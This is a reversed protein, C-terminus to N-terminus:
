RTTSTPSRAGARRRPRLRGARLAVQAPLAQPPEDDAHPDPEAGAAAVRDSEVDGIPYFHDSVEYNRLMEFPHGIAYPMPKPKILFGSSPRERRDDSDLAFTCVTAASSTTSSSSRASRSRERTPSTTATAVTATARVVLAVVVQGVGEQPRRDLLARRGPRGPDPALHASRDLVDGQPPPCRPRRVHRLDLDARPVPPRRLRVDGVRRQGRRRRPRRHRRRRRTTPTRSTAARRGEEGRAAQHVQLRVQGLRSRHCGTTSPSASSTRTAPPHAVPLQPGGRHDVAQPAKEPKRANVVFRPNNVAVAPAMVNITSFILNVILQDNRRRRDYQKGRYLDIYRKWRDDYSRTTAGTEELAPGRRPLVAAPRVAEDRGSRAGPQDVDRRHVDGVHEAVCEANTRTPSPRAGTAAAVSSPSASPARGSLPLVRGLGRSPPKADVRRPLDRRPAASGPRALELLGSRAVALRRTQVYQGTTWSGLRAPRRGRQRSGPSRRHPWRRPSPPRAPTSARPTAATAPWHRGVGRHPAVAYGRRSRASSPRLTVKDVGPEGHAAQAIKADCSRREAPDASGSSASRPESLSASAHDQRCCRRVAAEGDLGDDRATARHDARVARLWVYKLMQGAISLSITRDDFPSGHMKGDDDRM